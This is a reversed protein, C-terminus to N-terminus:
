LWAQKRRTGLDQLAVPFGAQLVPGKWAWSPALKRSTCSFPQRRPRVELQPAVPQLNAAPLSWIRWCLDSFPITSRGEDDVPTKTSMCCTLLSLMNLWWIIQAQGIRTSPQKPEAPRQPAWGISSSGSGSGSGSSSSSSSSSCCPSRHM